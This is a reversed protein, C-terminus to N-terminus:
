DLDTTTIVKPASVTGCVTCPSEISATGRLSVLENLHRICTPTKPPGEDHGCTRWIIANAVATGSHLGTWACPIQRPRRLIKKLKKITSHPTPLNKM